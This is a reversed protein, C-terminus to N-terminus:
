GLEEFLACHRRFAERAEEVIRAAEADDARIASLGQRYRSALAEAGPPGFAYFCTGRGDRLGLAGAVVRDVVQGGSLDGLYRVYSHAVLLAPASEDLWRLREVYAVAAATLPITWRWDGGHLEDLDAAIAAARSLGPLHVWCVPETARHRELAPELARYIAHLNGLLRCYDARDFDGALMRRMFGSREAARHLDRTGNRLLTALDASADAPM